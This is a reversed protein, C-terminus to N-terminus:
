YHYAKMGGSALKWCWQSSVPTSSLEAYESFVGTLTLALFAINFIYCGRSVDLGEVAGHWGKAAEVHLLRADLLM